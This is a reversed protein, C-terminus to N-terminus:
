SALKPSSSFRGEILDRTDPHRLVLWGYLGCATTVPFFTLDVLDVVAIALGVKRVVSFGRSPGRGSRRLSAITLLAFVIRLAAVFILACGVIKFALPDGPALNHYQSMTLDLANRPVNLPNSYQLFRAAVVVACIGRVMHVISLCYLHSLM